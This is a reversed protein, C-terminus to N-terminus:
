RFIRLVLGGFGQVGEVRSLGRGVSRTSLKIHSWGKWGNSATWPMAYMRDGSLVDFRVYGQPLLLSAVPRLSELDFSRVTMPSIPAHAISEVGVLLRKGDPSLSVADNLPVRGVAVRYRTVERVLKHTSADIRYIRLDNSVVYVYGHSVVVGAPLDTTHNPWTPLGPLKVSSILRMASPDVFRVDGPESCVVVIQDTVTTLMAGTCGPLSVKGPAPRLTRSDFAALWYDARDGGLWRSSYLFLRNGDPSLVLTSPSPYGNYRIRDPAPVKALLKWSRTDYMSLFPRPSPPKLPVLSDLVYLRSGDASVVADPEYHTRIRHLIAGTKTNFQVVESEHPDAGNRNDLSVLAYATDPKRPPIQGAPALAPPNHLLLWATLVGIIAVFSLLAAVGAAASFQRRLSSAAPEHSASRQSLIPPAQSPGGAAAEEDRLLELVLGETARVVWGPPSIAHVASDLAEAVRVLEPDREDGLLNEYARDDM